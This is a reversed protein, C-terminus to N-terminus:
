AMANPRESMLGRQRLKETQTEPWWSLQLNPCGAYCQEEDQWLTAVGPSQKKTGCGDAKM